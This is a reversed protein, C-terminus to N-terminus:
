RTKTTEWGPAASTSRGPGRAAVRARRPPSGRTTWRRISLATKSTTTARTSAPCSSPQGLHGPRAARSDRPPPRGHPRRQPQPRPRPGRHRHRVVARCTTSPPWGPRAPSRSPPGSAPPAATGGALNAYQEFAAQPHMGLLEGVEWWDLGADLADCVVNHHLHLASGQVRAASATAQKWDAAAAAAAAKGVDAAIAGGHQDRFAGTHAGPPTTMPAAGQRQAPRRAPSGPRAPRRRPARLALRSSMNLRVEGYPAINTWFMPTLGRLDDTSLEALGEDLVDQIMLTNVYVVAGQLVRLCLM